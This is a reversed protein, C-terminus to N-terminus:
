TALPSFFIRRLGGSASGMHRVQEGAYQRHLAALLFGQGPLAAQRSFVSSHERKTGDAQTEEAGGRCM